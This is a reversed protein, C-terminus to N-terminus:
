SHGQLCMESSHLAEFGSIMCIEPDNTLTTPLIGRVAVSASWLALKPTRIASAPCGCTWLGDDGSDNTLEHWKNERTGDLEEM